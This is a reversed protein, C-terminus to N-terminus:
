EQTLRDHIAQTVKERERVFPSNRYTLIVAAPGATCPRLEPCYGRIVCEPAMYDALNPDVRRVANKIRVFVGVTEKHSAFCLRKRAMNMLAQANAIMLHRVPTHRDVTQDGGRDDRNSEVFHEVGHKHRVLHTSVFSKVGDLQVAFMLVRAPSHECHYIKQLTMTSPKVGPKRTFDCAARM